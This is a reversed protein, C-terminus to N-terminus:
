QEKPKDALMFILSGKACLRGEVRAEADIFFTLGRRNAIHSTV